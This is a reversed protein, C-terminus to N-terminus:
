AIAATVRHVLSDFHFASDSIGRDRAPTPPAAIRICSVSRTLAKRRRINASAADINSAMADLM